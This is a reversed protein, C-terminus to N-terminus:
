RGAQGFATQVSGRGDVRVINQIAKKFAADARGWDFWVRVEGRVEGAPIPRTVGPVDVLHRMTADVEARGSEVGQAIGAPIWRGVERAMVRSPSAIGLARKIATQMSKAIALMQKEIAKQQSALGSVLGRAAEIGAGYMAEGAVGGARGAATVLQSQASNIATIQSKSAAALAAAASSGQEVGAQAIQAILDARVGRKRLAALDSAFKRAQELKQLLGSLIGSATVPGGDAQATINAADLIGKRITAALEDRAKIQDALSKTAAKMRAALGEERAALRLLERTGAGVTALARTRKKGPALADRVIDALRTAATKVQKSSGTLGEMLGRAIWRGQAATVRSPSHIGLASAIPGPVVSKAWSSINSRLWGGMGQIGRWLGMVVDRGANYLLSGLNGIASRIRGPLGRVFGVFQAAKQAVGTKMRDWHQLMWRVLPLSKIYGLILAGIARIKAWMAGWAESTFRKIKDWNLVIFAVLGIVAAIVWGIPGMAIFWQAAMIAAWAIARAAMLAFQAVSVAAARVVNAIWTGISVLASGTWALATRAASAMAAAAIRAYAMLGVGMMRLWGGIAKGVSSDMFDHAGKVIAAGAAYAMMAGKVAALTTILATLVPTPTSSIVRGLGEALLITAGLLPAIAKIVALVASALVGLTEAGDRASNLFRTFGESGKLSTAWDAFAGTMKVLGGTMGSSAPTFAALLGGFGVALNKIVTLFRELAPGSAAAMDAAWQKFKAGEVGKAVKDLFGGFAEAAAKVFPTLMPLLKRLIGIGKTFVPMTSSALSDSWASHDDKLGALAKSMERTAPPMGSLQEKYLSDAETARKTAAEAERLAAKYADGGQAALKQAAAKKRTAEAHADEAKEAAASAETVAEMQPGAALQFAKAAIGASAFAAALGMVGATVGAVVPAGVGLGAVAKGLSTLTAKAKEAGAQLRDTDIGLRVSM